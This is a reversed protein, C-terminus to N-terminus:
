GKLDFKNQGTPNLDGNSKQLDLNRNFWSSKDTNTGNFMINPNHKKFKKKSYSRKESHPSNINHL